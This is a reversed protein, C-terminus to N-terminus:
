GTYVRRWAGFFDVVPELLTGVPRSIFQHLDSFTSGVGPSPLYPMSRVVKVRGSRGVEKGVGLDSLRDHSQVPRRVHMHLPSPATWLGQNVCKVPCTLRKRGQPSPSLQGHPVSGM